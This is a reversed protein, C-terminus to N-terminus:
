AATGSDESDSSGTSPIGGFFSSFPSNGYSGYSSYPSTEEEATEEEEAETVYDPVKEDFTVTLQISENNRYVTLTATDGAKYDRMAASLETYTQITTDDLATIIDGSQVGAKDACSGEVTSRVYVGVPLNYYSAMTVNLDELYIGLYPKGTVYGNQQIDAVLTMVDNIPLAFGLGELTTSSSTSYKATTIGIVNGYMDFLPGGSNGPNIACDTQLMNIPTGDTNVERDLASVYGVTLTNTLEGLPNGIACVQQGVVLSDSDGISVTPLGTAEIKILAVDNDTDYGVIEADYSEGSTLVVKVTDAAVGDEAVVHANTVIYGDSTIIFGSGSAATSSAQGFYNTTTATVNIGVVADVNQAYVQSPDLETTTSGSTVLMPTNGSTTGTDGTTTTTETTQADATETQMTATQATATGDSPRNALYVAGGGAAGGILACVLALAVVKTGGSRKTEKQPHSALKYEVFGPDQHEYTEQEKNDYDHEDFM